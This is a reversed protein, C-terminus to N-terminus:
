PRLAGDSQELSGSSRSVITAETLRALRRTAPWSPQLDLPKPPSIAAETVSAANSQSSAGTAQM